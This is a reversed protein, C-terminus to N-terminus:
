GSVSQAVGYGAVAFFQLIHGFGLAYGQVRLVLCVIGSHLVEAQLVAYIKTGYFHTHILTRYHLLASNLIQLRVEVIGRRKKAANCLGKATAPAGQRFEKEGEQANPKQYRQYCCAHKQKSFPPIFGISLQYHLRNFTLEARHM